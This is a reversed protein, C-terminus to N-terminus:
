IDRKIATEDFVPFSHWADWWQKELSLPWLLHLVPAFKGEALRQVEEDIPADGDRRLDEIGERTLRCLGPKDDRLNRMCTWDFTLHSLLDGLGPTEYECVSMAAHLLPRVKIQLKELPPAYQPRSSSIISFMSRALEEDVAVDKMTYYVENLGPDSFRVPHTSKVTPVGVGPHYRTHASAIRLEIKSVKPLSGLERLFAAEDPTSANRRWGVGLEELGECARLAVLFKDDVNSLVDFRQLQHCSNIIEYLAETSYYTELRLKRLRPLSCCLAVVVDEGGICNSSTSLEILNPFRDGVKFWDISSSDGLIDLDLSRLCSFDTKVCHKFAESAGWFYLELTDLCGLRPETHTEGLWTTPKPPPDIANCLLIVEKLNEARGAVMEMVAGFIPLHDRSMDPYTHISYLCPSTAVALDIASIKPPVPHYLSPLDFYPMHFRCRPRISELYRLFELPIQQTSSEWSVDRLAPLMRLFRLVHQVSSPRTDISYENENYLNLRQVYRLRDPSIRALVYEAETYTTRNIVLTHFRYPDSADRCRRSVRAFDHLSKPDLYDAIHMFMELPLDDM